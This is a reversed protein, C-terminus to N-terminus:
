SKPEAPATAAAALAADAEDALAAFHKSREMTLPMHDVQVYDPYGVNQHMRSAAGLQRAVAGLRAILDQTQADM